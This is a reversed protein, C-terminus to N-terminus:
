TACSDREAVNCPVRWRQPVQQKEEACESKAKEPFEPSDLPLLKRRVLDFKMSNALDRWGEPRLEQYVGYGSFDVAINESSM